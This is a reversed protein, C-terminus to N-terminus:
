DDIGWEIMTMILKRIMLVVVYIVLVPWLPIVRLYDSTEYGEGERVTFFCSAISAVLWGVLFHAILYELM